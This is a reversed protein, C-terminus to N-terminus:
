GESSRTVVINLTGTAEDPLDAANIRYDINFSATDEFSRFVVFLSDLPENMHQKLRQVEYSVDYSNGRKIDPASVNSQTPLYTPQRNTYSFDRAISSYELIESGIRPLRPPDPVEPAQPKDGEYYLDFGDPFHLFADIDEAPATGENFLYLDLRITRRQLNASAYRERLYTEYEDYFTELEDNYRKIAEASPKGFHDFTRALSQLKTLGSLPPYDQQPESVSPMPQKGYKAKIKAAYRQIDEEAMTFPHLVTANFRDAENAFALKLKPFRNELQQVRRQLQRREKEVADLASPLKYEEPLSV